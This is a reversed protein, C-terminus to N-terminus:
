NGKVKFVFDELKKIQKVRDLDKLSNVTPLKITIDKDKRIEKLATYINKSKIAFVVGDANTEKSSIIGIVEGDKDIVPGGSNGPNVSISIQYSATDGYYGSKASLYGEGYVVEERPYGLTFIPEALEATTKPFTYPLASIKKFSTDTIKLIALDTTTNSYIPQASFQDGKKNEVIINKANQVVHANTIIYGSGDVLFGTARFNAEFKPKAPIATADNLKHEIQNLKHEFQNLKNDVLPTIVAVKKNESYKSIVTATSFSILGAIAAAVTITRRYRNWLYVVKSKPQDDESLIGEKRLKNQVQKLNQRFSKQESMNELEDLFFSHESAVQDIGPNNKRLEEFFLREADDMQGNRYREIADLLLNEDM